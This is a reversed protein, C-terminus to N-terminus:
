VSKKLLRSAQVAAQLVKGAAEMISEVDVGEKHATEPDDAYSLFRRGLREFVSRDVAEDM